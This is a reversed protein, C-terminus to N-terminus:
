KGIGVEWQQESIIGVGIGMNIRLVFFIPVDAKKPANEPENPYQDAYVPSAFWMMVAIVLVVLKMVM